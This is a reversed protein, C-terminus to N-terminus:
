KQGYPITKKTLSSPMSALGAKMADQIRIEIRKYELFEMVVSVLTGTRGKWVDRGAKLYLSKREM